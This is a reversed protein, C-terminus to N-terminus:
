VGLLPTKRSSHKGQIFRRERGFLGPELYEYTKPEKRIGDVHIGAEHSFVMDGVIPKSAHVMRGSSTEVMKSLAPLGGLDIDVRAGEMLAAAVAIEELATNGAREGLGNVCCSVYDAGARFAALANATGLGFDNHGHFDVPIDLKGSLSGIREMVGFPELAGVTDAYRVRYAGERQALQFLTLLFQRDARSADEAGISVSAGRAVALEVLVAMAHLVEERTSGLKRTIQIDSSPVSIHINRAGIVLSSRIDEYRMRNWTLIEAGLGMQLIEYVSEMEEKGMVPIGAEIVDVGLMDLAAAIEKKEELSFAVGPSQEGDRLTSDVIHLKRKDM